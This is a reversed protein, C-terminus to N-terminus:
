RSVQEPIGIEEGRVLVRVLGERSALIRLSGHGGFSCLLRDADVGQEALALQAEGEAAEGRQEGVTAVPDRKNKVVVACEVGFVPMHETLREVRCGTPGAALCIFSDIGQEGLVWVAQGEALRVHEAGLEEVANQTSCTVVEVIAVRVDEENSRELTEEAREFWRSAREEHEIPLIRVSQSGPLQERGSRKADGAM